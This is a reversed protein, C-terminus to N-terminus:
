GAYNPSVTPKGQFFIRMWGQCETKSSGPCEIMISTTYGEANPGAPLITEQIPKGCKSCRKTQQNM